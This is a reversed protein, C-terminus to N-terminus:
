KSRLEIRTEGQKAQLFVSGNRVEAKEDKGDLRLIVEKWPVQFGIEGGRGCIHMAAVSPGIEMARIEPMKGPLLHKVLNKALAQNGPKFPHLRLDIEPCMFKNVLLNSALVVVRGAGVPTEAVIPQGAYELLVKSKEGTKVGRGELFFPHVVGALLKRADKQRAEKLLGDLETKKMSPTVDVPKETIALGFRAALDSTAKALMEAGTMVILVGGGKLFADLAALEAEAPASELQGVLLVDLGSLSAQSWAENLVVPECRLEGLIRALTDLGGPEYNAWPSTDKAGPAVRVAVKPLWHNSLVFVQRDHGELRGAAIKWTWLLPRHNATARYLDVMPAYNKLEFRFEPMQLSNIAAALQGRDYVMLVRSARDLWARKEYAGDHEDDLLYTDAYGDGDNDAYYLFLRGNKRALRSYDNLLRDPNAYEKVAQADKWYAASYKIRVDKSWDDATMTQVGFQLGKLHYDNVIPSFYLTYKGSPNGEPNIEVRADSRCHFMGWNAEHATRWLPRLWHMAGMYSSSSLMADWGHTPTYDYRGNPWQRCQVAEGKWGDPVGLGSFIMTHGAADKLTVDPFRSLYFEYSTKPDPSPSGGHLFLCFNEHRTPHSYLQDKELYWKQGVWPDDQNLRNLLDLDFMWHTATNHYATGEAVGDNDIDWGSAFPWDLTGIYRGPKPATGRAGCPVTGNESVRSKPCDGPKEFGLQYLKGNDSDLFSAYRVAWGARGHFADVMAVPELNVDSLDFYGWHLFHDGAKLGWFGAPPNLKKVWWADNDGDGDLDWCELMWDKLLFSGPWWSPGGYQATIRDGSVLGGETVPGKFFLGDGDWDEYVLFPTSTEGDGLCGDYYRANPVVLGQGHPPIEPYPRCVGFRGLFQNSHLETQGTATDCYVKMRRARDPRQTDAEFELISELADDSNNDFSWRDGAFDPLRNGNRDEVFVADPIDNGGRYAESLFGGEVALSVIPRSLRAFMEEGQEPREILCLTLGRTEGPKPADVHLVGGRDVIMPGTSPDGYAMVGAQDGTSMLAAWEAPYCVDTKRGDVVRGEVVKHRPFRDSTTRGWVCMEVREAGEVGIEKKSVYTSYGGVGVLDIARGSVIRVAPLDRFFYYDLTEKGGNLRVVAVVPGNHIVRMQGTLGPQQLALEKGKWRARALGGATILWTAEGAEVRLAEGVGDEGRVNAIKFCPAATPKGSDLAVERTSMAAVTAQLFVKTQRGLAVADALTGPDACVGGAKAELGFADLDIEAPLVSTQSSPNSLFLATKSLTKLPISPPATEASSVEVRLPARLRRSLAEQTAFFAQASAVHGGRTWAGSLALRKKLAQTESLDGKLVLLSGADGRRVEAADEPCFALGLGLKLVREKQGWQYADSRGYDFWSRKGEESMAVKRTGWVAVYGQEAGGSVQQEDLRQLGVALQLGAANGQAKAELEYEAYHQGAYMTIVIRVDLVADGAKWGAITIEGRSRLRGDTLVKGSLKAGTGPRFVQDGKVAVLSGLGLQEPQNLPYLLWRGAPTDHQLGRIVQGFLHQLYAPRENFKGFLDGVLGLPAGDGGGFRFMLVDSEIALIANGDGEFEMAQTRKPYVPSGPGGGPSYYLYFANRKDARAAALFVVEGAATEAGDVQFPVDNGGQELRCPSQPGAVPDVVVLSRSDFDPARKRIDALPVVVPAESKDDSLCPRLVLKLRKGHQVSGRRYWQAHEEGHGVTTALILVAVAFMFIWRAGTNM